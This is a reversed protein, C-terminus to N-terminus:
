INRKLYMFDKGVYEWEPEYIDFGCRILNYISKYNDFSCYTIAVSIGHYKAWSLRHRISARHIGQGRSFAGARSLFITNPDIQSLSCFGIIRQYDYSKIVWAMDAHSKFDRPEELPFAKLHLQKLLEYDKCLKFHM